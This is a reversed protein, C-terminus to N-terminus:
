AASPVDPVDPIISGSPVEPLDQAVQMGNRWVEFDRLVLEHMAFAAQSLWNAPRAKLDKLILAGAKPHGSHINATEQGMAALLTLLQTKESLSQLRAKGGEPSLRRVLWGHKNRFYPDAVRVARKLVRSILIRRGKWESNVLTWASPLLLKAERVVRSENAGSAIQVFRPRGLSGCGSQRHYWQGEKHNPPIMSLVSRRVKRPVEDVPVCQKQLSKFYRAPSKKNDKLLASLSPSKDLVLPSGGSSITERYASVIAEQAEEVELPLNYKRVTFIVSTMLRVLDNTYPLLSVEDFDNIGFIERGKRDSWTGFNECHLDGVGLIQPATALAPLARPFRYCWWYYSGRFLSFASAGMIDHKHQLDVAVVRAVRALWQEYDQTAKIINM